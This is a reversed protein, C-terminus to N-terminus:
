EVRHHQLIPNGSASDYFTLTNGAIHFDYERLRGMGDYLQLSDLDIIKYHFVVFERSGELLMVSGDALYEFLFSTPADTSWKGVIPHTSGCASTLVIVLLLAGIQGLYLKTRRSM